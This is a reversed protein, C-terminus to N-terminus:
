SLPITAVGDTAAQAATAREASLTHTVIENFVWDAIKDVIQQNTAGGPLLFKTKMANQLRTIDGAAITKSSSVGGVSITLVAM